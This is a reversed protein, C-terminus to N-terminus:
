IITYSKRVKMEEIGIKLTEREEFQKKKKLFISLFIWFYKM